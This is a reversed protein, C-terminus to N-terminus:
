KYPDLVFGLLTRRQAPMVASKEMNIVFGLSTFLSQIDSINQLCEKTDRGQLYSDDIYGANLHGKQRLTSYVPKWLKTFVRPASSLGNTMCTYQCLSGQWYFWLYKRHEEAIPLSYYTDKLDLSVMFLKSDYTACCVM